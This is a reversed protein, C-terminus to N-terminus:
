YIDFEFNIFVNALETKEAKDKSLVVIRNDLENIGSEIHNLNVSNIPSEISPKDKWTYPFYSKEMEAARQKMKRLIGM